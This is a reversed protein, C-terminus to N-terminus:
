KKRISAAGIWSGIIRRLNNKLFHFRHLEEIDYGDYDEPRINKNVINEAEHQNKAKITYVSAAEPEWRPRFIVIFKKWM